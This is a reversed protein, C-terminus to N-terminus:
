WAPTRTRSSARGAELQAVVCRIGELVDLPEFGTIVIPVRYASVLPGYQHTGMVSCVHGAALFGDVRNHAVVRDGRHRSSRPRSERARSFNGLGRQKALHVAMANAPATTEFGIAFFM